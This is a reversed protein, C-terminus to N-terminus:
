WNIEFSEPREQDPSVVLRGGDLDYNVGNVWLSDGDQLFRTASFEAIRVAQSEEVGDILMEMFDEEPWHSVVWPVLGGEPIVFREQEGTAYGEEDLIEEFWEWGDHVREVGAIVSHDSGVYHVTSVALQALDPPVTPTQDDVDNM